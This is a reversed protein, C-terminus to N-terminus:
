IGGGLNSTVGGLGSVATGSTYATCRWRVHTAGDRVAVSGDATLASGESVFTSGGDYSAQLQYTATGVTALAVTVSTLDAVSTAAGNTSAVQPVVVARTRKAHM